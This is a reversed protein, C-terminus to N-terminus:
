QVIVFFKIKVYQKIRNLIKNKTEFSHLCNLNYSDNHHKSMIGRSLAPTKKKSCSLAIRGQKPRKPDHRSFYASYIKENKSHLVNLTIM